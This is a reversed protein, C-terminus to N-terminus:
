HSKNVKPKNFVFYKESFYSAYPNIVEIRYGKSLLDALMRNENSVNEIPMAEAIGLHKEVLHKTSSM